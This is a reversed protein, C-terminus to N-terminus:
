AAVGSHTQRAAIADAILNRVLNSVTRREREAEAKVRAALEPDLRTSIMEATKSM